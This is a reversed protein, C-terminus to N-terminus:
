MASLSLKEYGRKRLVRTPVATTCSLSEQRVKTIFAYHTGQAPQDSLHEFDDHLNLPPQYHQHKRWMKTKGVGIILLLLVCLLSATAWASNEDATVRREIKRLVEREEEPSLWDTNNLDPLQSLDIPAM